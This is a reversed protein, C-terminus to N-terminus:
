STINKFIKFRNDDNTATQEKYTDIGVTTLLRNYKVENQLPPPKKVDWPLAKSVESWELRRRYVRGHESFNWIM